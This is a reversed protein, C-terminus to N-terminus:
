RIRHAHRGLGATSSGRGVPVATGPRGDLGSFGAGSVSRAPPGALSARYDAYCELKGRFTACTFPNLLYQVIAPLNFDLLVMDIERDAGLARLATPAVARRLRTCIAARM